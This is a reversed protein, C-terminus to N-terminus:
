KGLMHSRFRNYYVDKLGRKLGTQMLTIPAPGNLNEKGLKDKKPL